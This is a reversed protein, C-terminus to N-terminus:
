IEEIACDHKHNKALAEVIGSTYRSQSEYACTTCVAKYSM